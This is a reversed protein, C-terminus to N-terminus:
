IEDEEELKKKLKAVANRYAWLVTGLPKLLMDAIERHKYGGAIHLLVIQQESKTLTERIIKLMPTSISDEIEYEGFRNSQESFDTPTERKQRKIENLSLNKAITFIWASANTGAKYGDISNRMKVYTNQLLDEATHYNKTYTLIFSFLGRKTENYIIDFASEDGNKLRIMYKDLEVKDM